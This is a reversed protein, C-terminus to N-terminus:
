RRFDRVWLHGMGRQGRAKQQCQNELFNSPTISPPSRMRQQKEQEKSHRTMTRKLMPRIKM